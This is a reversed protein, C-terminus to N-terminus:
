PQDSGDGVAAMTWRAGTWRAGTWRAGTWRAGTWRAGTWRAGAWEGDTWRAGTWRAGTWRAGAWSAETWSAETWRAGTWRAGTWRAGTWRAGSWGIAGRDAVPGRGRMRDGPAPDAGEGAGVELLAARELDITAGGTALPVATDVLAGKVDGPTADPHAALVVAAAGAGLATAMSTGSGIFYGSGLATPIQNDANALDITSGPARLSILSTGPVVLEPKHLRAASGSWPAVVDDETAATGRHDTAGITLASRSTGPSTVTGPGENGSAVVVTLGAAWAAEVAQALPDAPAATPSVTGLSLNLVDIGTDEQHVVAWGIAEILTRLTTTGDDGAVKISVIHAGPAVGTRSGGVLGAMFTGHGYGDTLAGGTGGSLDIGAELRGALDEHPAVGTDILGVTTGRGAGPGGTAGPHLATVQANVDDGVSGDGLQDSAVVSSTPAVMRDASVVLGAGQLTRLAEGPVTAAVGGIIELPAVVVGGVARVAAATAETSAGDVIVALATGPGPATGAAMAPLASVGAMGAVLVGAGGSRTWRTGM